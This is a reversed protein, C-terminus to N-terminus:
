LTVRVARKRWAIHLDITLKSKRHLDNTWIRLGRLKWFRQRRRHSAEIREFGTVRGGSSTRRASDICWLTTIRISSSQTQETRDASM